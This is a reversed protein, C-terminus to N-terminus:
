TEAQVVAAPLGELLDALGQADHALADLLDLGGGQELQAFAGAKRHQGTSNRSGAESHRGDTQERGSSRPHLARLALMAVLRLHFEDRQSSYRRRARRMPRGLHGM